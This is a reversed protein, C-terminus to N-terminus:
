LRLAAQVQSLHEEAHAVIFKEIAEAVTITGGKTYVGARGREEVTMRRIVDATVRVERNLQGLMEEPDGSSGREIGALREPSDAARGVRYPTGAAAMAKVHRTWYPIMEVTHGLIQMVSWDRVDPAHKLLWAVEPRRLLRTMQDAVAELRRAQSEARTGQKGTTM